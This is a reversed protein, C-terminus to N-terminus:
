RDPSHFLVFLRMIIANLKIAITQVSYITCLIFSVHPKFFEFIHFENYTGVVTSTVKKIKKKNNLM